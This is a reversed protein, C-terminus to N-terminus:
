STIPWRILYADVLTSCQMVICSVASRDIRFDMRHSQGIYDPTISVRCRLHEGGADLSDISIRIFPEISALFAEHVEGSLLEQCQVGFAQIDPVIMIARQVWISVGATECCAQVWLWDGDVHDTVEPYARGYVWLQLGAVQLDPSKREDSRMQAM